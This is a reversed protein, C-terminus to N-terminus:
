ITSTAYAMLLLFFGTAAASNIVFFLFRSAAFMNLLALMLAASLITIPTIIITM